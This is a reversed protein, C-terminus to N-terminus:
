LPAWGIKHSGLTSGRYLFFIGLAQKTRQWENAGAVQRLARSIIGTRIHLQAEAGWKLNFTCGCVSFPM